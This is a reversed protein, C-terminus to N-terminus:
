SLITKLSWDPLNDGELTYFDVIAKKGRKELIAYTKYKSGKPLRISGPNIFLCDDIKEAGAIHSHGFCVIDAGLERAKLSINLLTSKVNFLHGHTVFISWTDFSIVSEAPFDDGFDCNGQVTAYPKIVEDEQSLESDGCHIFIDVEDKHRAYLTHLEDYLGHSDSVILAKM